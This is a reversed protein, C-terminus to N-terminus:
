FMIFRLPIFQKTANDYDGIQKYSHIHACNNYANTPYTTYFM